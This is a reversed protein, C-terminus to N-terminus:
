DIKYDYRIPLGGRMVLLTIQSENQLSQWLLNQQEHVWEGNVQLVVDGTQLGLVKYFDSKDVNRLKLLHVGEVVHDTNKFHSALEDQNLLQESIWDKSLTMAGTPNIDANSFNQEATKNKHKKSKLTLPVDAAEKAETLLIYQYIKNHIVIVKQEEIDLLEIKPTIFDNTNFIGNKDNRLDRIEATYQKKESVVHTSLLTLPLYSLIPSSQSIRQLEEDIYYAFGDATQPGKVYLGNIFLVPVNGLGITAAYASDEDISSYHKKSKLCAKFADLPIKLQEAIISYREFNLQAINNYIASQFRWPEDFEEACYVANAASKGYRHFNSPHDYFAINIATQYRLELAEIVQTLRACHSSQYSCFISLTVSAADHGKILHQSPPLKIRPASPPQLLIKVVPEKTDADKGQILL